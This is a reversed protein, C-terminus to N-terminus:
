ACRGQFTAKVVGAYQYMYIFEWTLISIDYRRPVARLVVADPRDSFCQRFILGARPLHHQWSVVIISKWSRKVALRHTMQAEGRTNLVEPRMCIVEIGGSTDSCARRMVPDTAPYPDSLLVTKAWGDRALSLGYDERGDHEGGLVVIADVRRLPDSAAHGFVIVGSVGTVVMIFTLGVCLLVFTRRLATRQKASSGVESGV